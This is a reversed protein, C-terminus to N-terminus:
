GFGEDPRAKHIRSKGGPNILSGVFSAIMLTLAISPTLHLKELSALMLQRFGTYLISTLAAQLGFIQFNSITPLRVHRSASIQTPCLSSGM